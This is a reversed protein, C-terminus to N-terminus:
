SEQEKVSDTDNDTSETGIQTLFLSVAARQMEALTCGAKISARELEARMAPTCPTAPLRSTYKQRIQM